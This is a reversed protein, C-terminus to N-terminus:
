AAAAAQWASAPIASLADTDEIASACRMLLTRILEQGRDNNSEYSQFISMPYIMCYALSIRYLRWTEAPDLTIGEAAMRAIYRDVLEQDRRARVEPSLSQSVFYALDYVGPGQSAIQFDLATLGRDSMFLNDARFDGHVLTDGNALQEFFYPTLGNWNDGFRVLDNSLAGAMAQRAVPWGASFMAPLLVPYVPNQMKWFTESLAPLSPHGYWQAHFRALVDTVLEAEEWTCGVVQDLGRLGGLDEMIIAFDGSGPEIFAYHCRASAFPASAAIDQYFRVERGYANLTDALYRMQPDATPLKLIVTAPAEGAPGNYTLRFRFLRSLMGVGEGIRDCAIESVQRDAALAGSAHLVQTIWAPTVDAESRPLSISDAAM